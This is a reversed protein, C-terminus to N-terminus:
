SRLFALLDANVQDVHTATLGHPAAPYYITKASKLIRESKRATDHIPVIQDDEGHLLLTPVDIKKLDETFETESFAKICDYSNKTGVQMSWLWFQDLTAQSIKAGERNAGYFPM